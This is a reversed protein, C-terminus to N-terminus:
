IHGANTLPRFRPSSYTRLPPSSLLNPSSDHTTKPKAPTLLVYEALEVSFIDTQFMYAYFKQGVVEENLNVANLDVM